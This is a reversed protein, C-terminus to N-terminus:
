HRIIDGSKLITNDVNANQLL